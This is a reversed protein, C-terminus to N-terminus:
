DANREALSVILGSGCAVVVRRTGGPVVAIPTSCGTGEVPHMQGARVVAFELGPAVLIATGQADVLPPLWAPSAPAPGTVTGRAPSATLPVELPERAPAPEMLLVGTRDVATLKGSPAVAPAALVRATSGPWRKARRGTRLELVTLTGDGVPAVLREGALVAGARLPGGLSGVTELQGGRTWLQVRGQQEVVLTEDGYELLAVPQEAATTQLRINGTPDLRVLAHDVALVLSGDSRPLPAPTTKSRSPLAAAWRRQGTTALAVAEGTTTVVVIGLDSLIAPASAAPAGLEAQWGLAGHAGIRTLVGSASAVLIAGESDM